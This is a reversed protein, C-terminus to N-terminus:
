YVTVAPVMMNGMTTRKAIALHVATQLVLQIMQHLHLEGAAGGKFYRSQHPEQGRGVVTTAITIEGYLPHEAKRHLTMTLLKQDM